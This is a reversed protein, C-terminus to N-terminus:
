RRAISRLSALDDKSLEGSIVLVTLYALGLGVCALLGVIFSVNPLLAGCAAVAGTAVLVRALTATRVFAGTYRKVAFGAFALTVLLSAGVAAAAMNVMGTGFTQRPVLLALTTASLALGGLTIRAGTREKGVSTLLASAVGLLAFCAQGLALVRLTAAGREAFEASYLVRIVVGPVAVLIGVFLGTAILALRTGRVVTTAVAARDGEGHAKSVMPFLVQTLSILLQYPLFAFLQCARYIGIWEDVDKQPRNTLTAAEGLYRGLLTLDVQMLLNTGLHTLAIPLLALLYSRSSREEAGTRKLVSFRLALPFICLAAIVAGACAGIAGVTNSHMAGYSGLVLGTTRLTAAVIDLTAQRTFMRRGNLGGVLPAYVGYCALVVSMLVLPTVMAPAYQFRAIWPAAIALAGGFFLALPLHARLADRLADPHAHGARSVQRSVGQLSTSVVVNNPINTVALVRSLAGYGAMGLIRSLLAQQVLGSAIFYVKAVLVFLGGRGVNEPESSEKTMSSNAM